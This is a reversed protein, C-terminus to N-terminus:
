QQVLQEVATFPLTQEQILAQAVREISSWHAYVLRRAQGTLDRAHRDGREGYMQWLTSWFIQDDGSGLVDNRHGTLREEALPGARNCVLYDRLERAFRRHGVNLFAPRIGYDVHGLDDEGPVITVYWFVLDHLVAAVAHGAEHYATEMLDVIQGNLQQANTNM